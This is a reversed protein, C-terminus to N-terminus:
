FDSSNRSLGFNWSKFFLSISFIFVIRNRSVFMLNFKEKLNFISSSKGTPLNSVYNASLNLTELRSLNVIDDPLGSISNKSLDLYRLNRMSGIRPPLCTLNINSAELHVLGILNCFKKPLTWIVNKYGKLQLSPCPADPPNLSSTNSLHLIELDLLSTFGVPFEKIGSNRLDLKM